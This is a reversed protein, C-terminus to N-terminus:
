GLVHIHFPIAMSKVIDTKAEYDYICAETSFTYVDPTTGLNIFGHELLLSMRKCRVEHFAVEFDKYLLFEGGAAM